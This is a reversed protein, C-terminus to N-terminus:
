KSLSADKAKKIAADAEAKAQAILAEAPIIIIGVIQPLDTSNTGLVTRQPPPDPPEVNESM